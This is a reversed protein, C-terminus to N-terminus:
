CNYVQVFSTVNGNNTIYIRYDSIETVGGQGEGSNKIYGAKSMRHGSREAGRGGKGVMYLQTIQLRVQVFVTLLLKDPRQM